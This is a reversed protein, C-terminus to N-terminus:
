TRGEKAGTVIIRIAIAMRRKYDAPNGTSAKVGASTDLLHRALERAGIGHREWRAATGTRKLVGAIVAIVDAEFRSVINGEQSRAVAALEAINTKSSVMLSDGCLIGTMAMLIQELNGNQNATLGTISVLMQGTLNELAARFLGQKNSFQLYLTQRSVQAAAAVDEM